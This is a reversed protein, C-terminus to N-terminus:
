LGTDFIQNDAYITHKEDNDKDKGKGKTMQMAQTDSTPQVFNAQQFISQKAAQQQEINANLIPM